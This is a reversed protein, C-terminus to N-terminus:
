ENIYLIRSCNECIILRDEIKIENVVQPPVKMFCGQCADGLLSVLAVGDKNVLIKEYASLITHSIKPLLVDRNSYLVKLEEDISQLELNINKEELAIKEKEQALLEKEKSIREKLLDTEEMFNLVEEELLSNDAKLGEIEKQLSAYEKNTKVSFLQSNYKKILAEKSGLDVEKEKRKVQLSKLEDELIKVTNEKERSNNRLILMDNPREEIRVKFDYIQKDIAQLEVLTEMEIKM